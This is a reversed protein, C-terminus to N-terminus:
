TVNPVVNFGAITFPITCNGTCKPNYHLDILANNLSGITGAGEEVDLMNDFIALNAGADSKKCVGQWEHWMHDGHLEYYFISASLLLVTYSRLYM